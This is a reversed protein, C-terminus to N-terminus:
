VYRPGFNAVGCLYEVLEDRAVSDAPDAPFAPQEDLKRLNRLASGRVGLLEAAVDIPITSPYGRLFAAVEETRVPESDVVLRAANERQRPDMAIYGQLDRKAILWKGAVRYGAIRDGILAAAVSRPKLQLVAAAQEASVLDACRGWFIDATTM